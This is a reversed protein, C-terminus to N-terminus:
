CTAAATTTATSRSTVVRYGAQFHAHLDRPRPFALPSRPCTAPWCAPSTSPIDVALRPETRTLVAGGCELWDGDFAIEDGCACRRGRPVGIECEVLRHGVIVVM